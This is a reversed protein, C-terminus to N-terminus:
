CVDPTSPATASSRQLPRASRPHVHRPTRMSRAALPGVVPRLLVERRHDHLLRRGGAHLLRVLLTANGEHADRLPRPLVGARLSAVASALPIGAGSSTRRSRRQGPTRDGTVARQGNLIRSIRNVPIEIRRALEAASMGLADLDERLTEGPHIPERM